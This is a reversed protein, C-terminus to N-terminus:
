GSEVELDFGGETVVEIGKAFALTMQSPNLPDGNQNASFVAVGSPNLVGVAAVASFRRGSVAELAARLQDIAAVVRGEDERSAKM